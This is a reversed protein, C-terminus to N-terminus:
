YFLSMQTLLQRKWSITGIPEHEPSSWLENCAGNLGARPGVWNGIFHTGSDEKGATLAVPVHLQCNL